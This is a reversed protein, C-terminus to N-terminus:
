VRRQGGFLTCLWCYAHGAKIEKGCCQCPVGNHPMGRVFKIGGDPLRVARYRPAASPELIM